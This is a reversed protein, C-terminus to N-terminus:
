FKTSHRRSRWVCCHFASFSNTCRLISRLRPVRSSFLGAVHVYSRQFDHNRANKRSFDAMFQDNVEKVTQIRVRIKKELRCLSPSVLDQLFRGMDGDFDGLTRLLYSCKLIKLKEKIYRLSNSQLVHYLQDNTTAYAIIITIKYYIFTFGAEFLSIEIM